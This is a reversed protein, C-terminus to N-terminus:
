RERGATVFGLRGRPLSCVLESGERLLVAVATANGFACRLVSLAAGRHSFGTGHVHVPMRGYVPGRQPVVASVHVQMWSGHPLFGNYCDSLPVRAGQSLARIAFRRSFFAGSWQIYPRTSQHGSPADNFPMGRSLILRIPRAGSCLKWIIDCTLGENYIQVLDFSRGHFGFWFDLASYRWGISPVRLWAPTEANQPCETRRM